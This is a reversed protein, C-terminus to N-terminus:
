MTTTLCINKDSKFFSFSQVAVDSIYQLRSSLTAYNKGQKSTVQLTTDLGDRIQTSSVDPSHQPNGKEGLIRSQNHYRTSDLRAKWMSTGIQKL